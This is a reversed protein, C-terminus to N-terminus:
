QASHPAPLLGSDCTSHTCPWSSCVVETSSSCRRRATLCAQAGTQLKSVSCMRKSVLLAAHIPMSSAEM